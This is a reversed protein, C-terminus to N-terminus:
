INKLVQNIDKLESLNYVSGQATEIVFDQADVDYNVSIDCKELEVITDASIDCKRMEVYTDFDIKCSPLKEVMSKHEIKCKEVSIETKFDINCSKQRAVEIEYLYKTDFREGMEVKIDYTFRMCKELSVSVDFKPMRLRMAREWPMYAVPGLEMKIYEDLNSRDVTHNDYVENSCVTYDAYKKVSEIVKQAHEPCLCPRAGREEARVHRELVPLLYILKDRDEAELSSCGGHGWRLQCIEKSQYKAIQVSAAKIANRVEDYGIVNIYDPDCERGCANCQNTAPDANKM